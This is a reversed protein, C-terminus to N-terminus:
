DLEKLQKEVIKKIFEERKKDKHSNIDEQIIQRDLIDKLVPNSSLSDRKSVKERLANIKAITEKSLRRSSQKSGLVAYVVLLFLFLCLLSRMKKPSM